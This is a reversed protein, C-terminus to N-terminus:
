AWRGSTASPRSWRSRTASTSTCRRPWSAASSSAPASRRATGSRTAFPRTQSSSARTTPRSSSLDVGKLYQEGGPGIGIVEDPPLTLLKEPYELYEFKGVEINKVLDIVNGISAPDVGRVIVGALNSPSSIM